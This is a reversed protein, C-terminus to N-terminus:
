LKTTNMDKPKMHIPNDASTTKKTQKQTKTGALTRERQHSLEAKRPEGGPFFDKDRRTKHLLNTLAQRSALIHLHIINNRHIITFIQKKKSQNSKITPLQKSRKMRKKTKTTNENRHLLEKSTTQSGQDSIEETKVHRSWFM